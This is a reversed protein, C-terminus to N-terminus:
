FTSEQRRKSARTQANTIESEVVYAKIPTESLANALDENESEGTVNTVNQPTYQPLTPTAVAYSASSSSSNSNPQTNRIQQIQAFGAALVAAAQIAALAIGWGGTDRTIGMFAGVAGAITNITAQAIQLAKAQEFQREYEAQTIQGSELQREANDIMVDAVAGMIDGISSSIGSITNFYEQYSQAKLQNSQIAHAVEEDQIAGLTDALSQEIQVRQEATLAEDTLANRYADAMSQLSQMRLAYIEDEAEQARKLAGIRDAEGAQSDALTVRNNIDSVEDELMRNADRINDQLLALTYSSIGVIRQQEAEALNRQQQLVQAYIAVYEESDEGFVERTRGLREALADLNTQITEEQMKFAKNFYDRVASLDFDEAFRDFQLEQSMASLAQELEQMQRQVFSSIQSNIARTQERTSREQIQAFLDRYEAMSIIGANVADNLAKVREETQELVQNLTNSEATSNLYNVVLNEYARRIDEVADERAKTSEELRRREEDDAKEQAKRAEEIGHIYNDYDLDDLQQRLNALTETTEKYSENLEDYKDKELKKEGIQRRIIDMNAVIAETEAIQAQIARRKSQYIDDYSKGQAEMLREEREIARNGRELSENLQENAEAFAKTARTAMNNNKVYNSIANVLAALAVGIAVIIAGIGTSTIAAALGRMAAAFGTTAGAAATSAAATTTAAAAQAQTATGAAAATTSVRTNAAAQATESKVASEAATNVAQTAEAAQRSAQRYQQFGKILGTLRDGFEEFAQLGQIVQMFRQTTVLAEDLAENNSSILGALGQLASFGGMLSGTIGVLNTLIDGLDSSAWRLQEQQETVDHTLQTMRSFVANYEETGQELQALEQRLARLEQQPTKLANKISEEYNGVNRTYVGVQADQEKLTNQLESSQQQLTQIGGSGTLAKMVRNTATLENQLANYSGTQADLQSKGARQAKEVATQLQITEQLKRNYEETSDDMSNLAQINQAIEERLQRLSKLTGDININAIDQRSPM